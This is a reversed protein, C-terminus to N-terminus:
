LAARLRKELDMVREKTEATPYWAAQLTQLKQAMEMAVPQETLFAAAVIETPPEADDLWGIFDQVNPYVTARKYRMVSWAAQSSQLDLEHLARTERNTPASGVREKWIASWDTM